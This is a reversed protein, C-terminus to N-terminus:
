AHATGFRENFEEDKGFRLLGAQDRWQERTIYGAPLNLRQELAMEDEQSLHVIDDFSTVGLGFLRTNMMADVGRMRTLDDRKAAGFWTKAPAEAAPAPEEVVPEPAPQVPEAAHAKHEAEAHHKHSSYANWALHAAEALVAGEAIHALTSLTSPEAPHEHTDEHTAEAHAEPAVHVPEAAVPPPAEEVVVPAPTAEVVAPVPAAEVVAPAPAVVEPEAARLPTVGYIPAPPLETITAREGVIPQPEPAPAVATPVPTAIVPAAETRAITAEAEAHRQQLASLERELEAIRQRADRLDQDARDAYAAYDESEEQYLRRWKGGGTFSAILFLLAALGLLAIIVINTPNGLSM